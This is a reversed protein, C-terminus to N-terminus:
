EIANRDLFRISEALAEAFREAESISTEPGFSIRLTSSARVSDGTMSLVMRSGEADSECASKTSVAFGRADLLFLLYDTDRGPFSANLIHPACDKSANVVAHPLTSITKECLARLKATHLTFRERESQAAHLASAFAQALAPNETGPRLGGEQPGGHLLPVLRVHHQFALVGIGRVGGIKQADLSVTDAGLSALSMSRVRPAQSADVHLLVHSGTKKEHADLVRRVERTDFLTGTEGSVSELVVLATQARLQGSLARLDVLGEMTLLAETSVGMSQLAAISEVVSSHAGEHYLVHIDEPSKGDKRLADVAGIIALNNAETAGSTFVIGSARVGLAGAIEKRAEELLARAQVGEKHLSSPNAFQASAKAFAALAEKVPPTSAAHDLYVRKKSFGFM